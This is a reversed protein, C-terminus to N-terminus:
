PSHSSPKDAKEGFTERDQAYAVCEDFLRMSMGTMQAAMWFREYNFNNMIAYFGKNEEGM